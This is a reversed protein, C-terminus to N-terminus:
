DAEEPTVETEQSAEESVAETEQFVEEPAVETEGPEVGAEESEPAETRELESEAEEESEAEIETRTESETVFELGTESLDASLEQTGAEEAEAESEELIAAEVKEVNEIGLASKIASLNKGVVILYAALCQSLRYFCKAMAWDEMDASTLDRMSYAFHVAQSVATRNKPNKVFASIGLDYLVATLSHDEQGGDERTHLGKGQDVLYLAKGCFAEFKGSVIPLYTIIDDRDLKELAIKELAYRVRSGIYESGPISPTEVDLIRLFVSYVEEFDGAREIRLISKTETRIFDRVRNDM